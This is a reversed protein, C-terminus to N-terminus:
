DAKSTETEVDDPPVFDFTEKPVVGNVKVGSLLTVREAYAGKEQFVTKIRAPFWFGPAPELFNSSQISLVRKGKGDWQEFGLLVDRKTDIRVSYRPDRGEVLMIAPENSPVTFSTLHDLLEEFNGVRLGDVALRRTVAAVRALGAPNADKLPTRLAKRATPLYETFFQGDAVFVRKEPATYDIRMLGEATCAFSWRETMTVGKSVSKREVQYQLSVLGDIRDNVERFVQEVRARDESKQLVARDEALSVLPAIAFVAGTTWGAM